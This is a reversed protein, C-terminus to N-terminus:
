NRKAKCARDIYETPLLGDTSPKIFCCFYSPYHRILYATKYATDSFAAAHAECFGYGAYSLIYAFIEKAVKPEIGNAIAKTVFQEGIRELEKQSRYNTMARRLRDSEGPTFGAIETAIEIVQEQYLVVGYTKALISKLKPHLYTPTELGHRRTIFPEVMDAKIPGPRILAVSAVIDEINDAHLRAQLSRQAPSELQFVGVSSANNLMQYTDQDDLPIDDYSKGQQKLM